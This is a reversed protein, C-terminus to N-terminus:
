DKSNITISITEESGSLSRATIKYIGPATPRFVADNGLNKGDVHWQSTESSKLPIATREELQFADGDHPSLILEDDLLLNRHESLKDARLGTHTTDDIVVPVLSDFAFPTGRNYESAYLLAMAENWIDGAGSAGSVSDMPTNDSNGVWVAVLFDPTYGVTWSDHWDRSTGTKVAYNKWPLNLSSELGFQDVGTTRDNLIKTVLEAFQAGIIQKGIKDDSPNTFFYDLPKLVGENPLISLTRALELLSIELGGLAIGLEYESLPRVPKIQLDKELFSSFETQGVYELVKVTPVNLSNALAYHLTVRGRYTRDFNKPYFPFGNAVSYKYERDDVLSYPRLGKEFAKLYILPKVTSGIPRPSVTMNIQRGHMTDTPDPSGVMALLENEPLKLVVAAGTTVNKKALREIHRNVIARLKETLGQDISLQCNQACDALNEMEFSAGGSVFSGFAKKRSEVESEDAGTFPNIVSPSRITNALSIIEEDGLELPDKGFYLRSASTLGQARNGFYVSNLYMELIEKKSHFLELSFAHWTESLKNRITREDEQELLVKALQQTITSGAPNKNGTTKRWLSRVISAPNIGLHVYFFRDETELIGNAVRDPVAGYLAYNDQSNPQIAVIEGHRDYMVASRRARYQKELTKNSMFSSAAFLALSASVAAVIFSRPIKKSPM